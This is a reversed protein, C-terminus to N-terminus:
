MKNEQKSTIAHASVQAELDTETFFCLVHRKTSIKSFGEAEGKMSSNPLPASTQATAGGDGLGWNVNASGRWMQAKYLIEQSLTFTCTFWLEWRCLLWASNHFQWNLLSPLCSGHSPSCVGGGSQLRGGYVWQQNILMDGWKVWISLLQWM